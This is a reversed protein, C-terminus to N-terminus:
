GEESLEKIKRIQELVSKHKFFDNVDVKISGDAGMDVNAAEYMDDDDTNKAIVNKVINKM